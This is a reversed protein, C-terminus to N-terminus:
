EEEFLEGVRLEFGPLLDNGSIIDDPGLVVIPANTQRMSFERRFPDVIWVQEVGADLYIRVKQETWSESERVELVEAVLNPSVLLFGDDPHDRLRDLQVFALDPALVIDPNHGLVCGVQGAYLEGLPNARLFAGLYATLRGATVGHWGGHLPYAFLQGDILDFRAEAGMAYLEEATVLDRTVM